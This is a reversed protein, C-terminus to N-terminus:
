RKREEQTLRGVRLRFLVGENLGTFISEICDAQM